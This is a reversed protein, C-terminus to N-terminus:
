NSLQSICNEIELIYEDLKEKLVATDGTTKLNSSVIKIFKDSKKFNKSQENVKKQLESVEKEKLEINQKLEQTEKELEIVREKSADYAAIIRRLKLDLSDLHTMLQFETM